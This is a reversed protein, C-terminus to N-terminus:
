FHNGRESASPLGLPATEKRAHFKDALKLYDKAYRIRRQSTCKRRVTLLLTRLSTSISARAPAYEAISQTKGITSTVAATMAEEEEASITRASSCAISYWINGGSM